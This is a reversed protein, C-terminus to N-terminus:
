QNLKEEEEQYEKYKEASGDIFARWAILGQVILNLVITCWHVPTIDNFGSDHCTYHSLDNALSSLTSISIYILLKAVVTNYSPGKINHM